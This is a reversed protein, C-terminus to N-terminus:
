WGVGRRAQKLPAMAQAQLLEQRKAVPLKSSSRGGVGGSGDGQLNSATLEIVPKM